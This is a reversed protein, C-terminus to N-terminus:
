AEAEVQVLRTIAEDAADLVRELCGREYPTQWAQYVDHDYSQDVPLYASLGANTVGLVIISQQPHRRRLELQLRSYPEGPVGVVVCDGLRWIWVQFPYSSLGGFHARLRRARTLREELSVPNIGAWLRELEEVEPMARLPLEVEIAVADLGAPPEWPAPEWMGLAAGSEVPGRYTLASGPPAMGELASLAAHGLSRGHRDAVGVDGVYQHRPALEGSAGQLFLCPVGTAAEVVERAAGVFDPSVLRNQWALTTPHCAYNVLVALLTGDLRALRGVVVTDDPVVAPNFGVVYRDGDALDRNAALGCRGVTCSLTAPAATAIAERGAEAAASRVDDLYRASPEDGDPLSGSPGAHTHSLNVLVRRADGGVADLVDARVHAEDEPNKWWGIDAAVLVLPAAGDAAFAAATLTLPRHV